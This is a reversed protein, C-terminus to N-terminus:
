ARVVPGGGLHNNKTSKLHSKVHRTIRSM